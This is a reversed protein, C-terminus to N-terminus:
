TGALDDDIADLNIGVLDWRTVIAVAARAVV